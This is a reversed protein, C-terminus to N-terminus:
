HKLRNARQQKIALLSLVTILSLLILGIGLYSVVSFDEGQIMSGVIGPGLGLGATQVAGMMVVVRGKPDLEAM